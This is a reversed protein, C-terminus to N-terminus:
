SQEQLEIDRDEVARESRGEVGGRPRRKIM